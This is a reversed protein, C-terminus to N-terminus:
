ETIYGGAFGREPDGYRNIIEPLGEGALWARILEPSAAQLVVKKRGETDILPGAIVAIGLRCAAEPLEPIVPGRLDRAFLPIDDQHPCGCHVQHEHDDVGGRCPGDHILVVPASEIRTMATRVDALIEEAPRRQFASRSQIRWAMLEEPDIGCKGQYAAALCHDAAAACCLEEPPSPIWWFPDTKEENDIVRGFLLSWVQGLSSAGWYEDPSRGYGPDGPSTWEWQEDGEEWYGKAPDPTSYTHFHKTPPRHHDVIVTEVEEPYSTRTCSSDIVWEPQCEVLIAVPAIESVVGGLDIPDAQYANGSHVRKGAVSAHIVILGAKQALSEITEMEPDSAGLVFVHNKKM